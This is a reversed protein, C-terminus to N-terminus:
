AGADIARALVDRVRRSFPLTLHGIGGIAINVAGELRSSDQPTVFNDHCSYISVVPLAWGGAEDQALRKLWASGPRMAHGNSGPALCALMSGHHPSGLTVLRAIRAAGYRRLYARAALGGMSHGMPLLCPSASAACVAEVRDHLVPAYADIDCFADLDVTYVPHGRRILWRQLAWWSASTLLYGHVLLVPLKTQAAGIPRDRMRMLAQLPILLTFLLTAVVIETMVCGILAPLGVRCGAPAPTGYRAALTYSLLIPVAPLLLVVAVAGAAALPWGHMGSRGSLLLFALALEAATVVLLARALRHM